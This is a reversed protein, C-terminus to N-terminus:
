RSPMNANLSVGFPKQAQIKKKKKEQVTNFASILNSSSECITNTVTWRGGWSLSKQKTLNRAKQKNGPM